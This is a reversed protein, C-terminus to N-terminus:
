LKMRRDPHGARVDRRLIRLPFPTGAEATGAQAFAARWLGRALVLRRALVPGRGRMGESFAVMGGGRIWLCGHEIRHCEISQLQPIFDDEGGKDFVLRSAIPHDGFLDNMVVAGQGLLPHPQDDDFRGIHGLLSFGVGGLQADIGLPVHFSQRPQDAGDVVFPGRDRQAEGMGSGPSRLRDDPLLRHSGGDDIEALIEGDAPLEIFPVHLFDDQKENM